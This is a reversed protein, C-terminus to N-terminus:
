EEDSYDSLTEWATERDSIYEECFDLFGKRESSGVEHCWERYQRRLAEDAGTMKKFEAEAMDLSDCQHLVDLFLETIDTM